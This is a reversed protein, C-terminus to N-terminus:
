LLLRLLKTLDAGQPTWTVAIRGTGVLHEAKLSESLSKALEAPLFGAADNKARLVFSLVEPCGAEQCDIGGSASGNESLALFAAQVHRLPTVEAEQGLQALWGSPLTLTLALTPEVENGKRLRAYMAAHPGTVDSGETLGSLASLAAELHMDSTLFVMKGGPGRAVLGTPSKLVEYRDNEAVPQGGAEIIRDRACGWFIDSVEPAAILLEPEGREAPPLVAVAVRAPAPVQACHDQRDAFPLQGVLDGRFDAVLWASQPVLSRASSRVGSVAPPLEPLTEQSPPAPAARPSTPVQAESSGPAESSRGLLVLGGVCLSVVTVSLALQLPFKM